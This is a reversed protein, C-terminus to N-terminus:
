SGGGKQFFVNVNQNKKRCSKSLKQFYMEEGAEKIAASAVASEPNNNTMMAVIQGDGGPGRVQDM